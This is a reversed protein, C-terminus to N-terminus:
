RSRRALDVDDEGAPGVRDEPRVQDGRQGVGPREGRRVAIRGGHRPREVEVARTRARRPRPSGRARARPARARGRPRRRDALERAAGHAAVRVVDGDGSGVPAPASRAMRAASRLAPSSGSPMSQTTACPVPVRSLSLASAAASTRTSPSRTAVTGSVAGFAADPVGEAAAPANPATTPACIRTSPRRAASRAVVLRGIRVARHADDGARRELGPRPRHERVREGEAALVGDQHQPPEVACGGSATSAIRCSSPSPTASRRRRVSRPAASRDRAVAATAGTSSAMRSALAVGGHGAEQAVDVADLEGPASGGSPRRPRRLRARPQAGSSSAAKARVM